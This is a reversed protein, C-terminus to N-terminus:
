ALCTNCMIASQCFCFRKEYVLGPTKYNWASEPRGGGNCVPTGENMAMIPRTAPHLSCPYGM